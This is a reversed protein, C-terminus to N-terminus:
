LLNISKTIRFSNVRAIKIGCSSSKSLFEVMWKRMHKYKTAHEGLTVTENIYTGTVLEFLKTKTWYNSLSLYYQLLIKMHYWRFM